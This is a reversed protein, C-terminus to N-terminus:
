DTAIQESTIVHLSNSRIDQPATRYHNLHHQILRMRDAPPHSASQLLFPHHLSHASLNPSVKHLAETFLACHPSLSPSHSFRPWLLAALRTISSSFQQPRDLPSIAVPPRLLPRSKRIPKVINLRWQLDM